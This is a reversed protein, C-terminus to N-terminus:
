ALRDEAATGASGDVGPFLSGDDRIGLHATAVGSFAARFDTTVPLDRGEHLADRDLGPLTGHVKGGDVENGLM